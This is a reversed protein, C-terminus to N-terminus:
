GTRAQQAELVAVAVAVASRTMETASVAPRARDVVGSGSTYRVEVMANGRRALVFVTREDDTGSDETYAEDPVQAVPRMRDVGVASRLSGVLTRAVAVGDEGTQSVAGALEVTVWLKSAPLMGFQRWVCRTRLRADPPSLDVGGTAPVLVGVLIAPIGTCAPVASRGAAVASGSAAGASASGPSASGPSASGPSASGPSASGIADLVSRAAELAGLDLDAFAPARYPQDLVTDAAEFTADFVVNRTRVVLRSARAALEYRRVLAAEDGFGEVGVAPEGRSWRGPGAFERAAEGTADRGATGDYREIAVALSQEVGATLDHFSWRCGGGPRPEPRTGAGVLRGVLGSPVLACGAPVSRYGPDDSPAVRVLTGRQEGGACGASGAVGATGLIAAGVLAGIRWRRWLRWRGSV